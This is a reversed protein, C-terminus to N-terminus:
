CVDQTSSYSLILQLVKSGSTESIDEKSPADGRKRKKMVLQILSKDNMGDVNMTSPCLPKEEPVCPVAAEKKSVLYGPAVTTEEKPKAAIRIKRLRGQAKADCNSLGESEKKVSLDASQLAKEGERANLFRGKSRSLSSPEADQNVANGNKKPRGRKRHNSGPLLHQPFQAPLALVRYTKAELASPEAVNEFSLNAKSSDPNESPTDEVRGEHSKRRHVTTTAKRGPSIWTHDYGEEPNMLSNPKRGRKKPVSDREIESKAAKTSGLSGPEANSRAGTSKSHKALVCSQLSKSFKKNKKYTEDNRTGNSMESKLTGDEPQGVKTGCVTDLALGETVQIIFILIKNLKWLLFLYYYICVFNLPYIVQLHCPYCSVQHPENPDTRPPLVSNSEELKYDAQLM